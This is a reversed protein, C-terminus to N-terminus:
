NIRVEMATADYENGDPGKAKVDTIFFSKGRALGRIKSKQADTFNSGVSIDRVSNTGDSLVITFQLVTFPINLVGDYIAVKIGQTNVVTAKPIRGGKFREPNGDADPYEIFTTPDPLKRVQFEKKTVEVYKGNGFDASVSVVMPVGVKSPKAVWYNDRPQLSGSGNAVQARIRNTSVGPVSIDIANDIGAYLVNMLRPALSAMPEIVNYDASFPIQQDDKGPRSLFVNGLFKRDGIGSAPISFTGDESITGASPVFRPRKTTDVAALIVRGRFTSGQMVFKSEPVVYAELSNVRYDDAGINSLLEALVDSEVARIDSQLKTLLTIAASTPMQEFLVQEWNKNGIGLKKSAQTNLREEVIEKKNGGVLSAAQHRYSDIAERLEQGRNNTPSLMIVSPADLNEKSEINNVDGNKGDAEVVILQKLSQIHNYLSDSSKKFTEARRYWLESKVPNQTYFEQMKNALVDNQETTSKITQQLGEEVLVFGDLVENSVNFALMAIFVLYMLNIMKQRPSNPSNSAM